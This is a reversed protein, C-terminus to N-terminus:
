EFRNEKAHRSIEGAIMASVKELRNKVDSWMKVCHECSKANKLYEEIRWLSSSTESLQKVLDHNHNKLM